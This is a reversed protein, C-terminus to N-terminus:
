RLAKAIKGAIYANNRLLALNARLTEGDTLQSLRTLLFPTLDKGAIGQEDADAEAQGLASELMDPDVAEEEPCPVCILAGGFGMEWHARLIDAVGAVSDARISVPFGSSHTFFAPFEDTQWGIVPVGATELWELTRPLDLIAKAGSCIVAIPTQALEPLDASIDGKNGRHVGGIGGTAFTRVGAANAIVMTGAVTTGGTWRKARATALDRRSLKFVETSIALEELEEPSLGLCVQGRLVCATAPVADASLVSEEMHRALELNIPRPLGHTIVTSELAVVPLNSRLAGQVFDSIRLWPPPTQTM